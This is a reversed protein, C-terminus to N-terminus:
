LRLIKKADEESYYPGLEAEDIIEQVQEDTAPTAAESATHEADTHEEEFVLTGKRQLSELVDIVLHEESERVAKVRFTKMIPQQKFVSNAFVIGSAHLRVRPILM